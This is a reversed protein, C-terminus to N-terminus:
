NSIAFAGIVTGDSGSGIGGSDVATWAGTTPDISWLRIYSADPIASCSQSELLYAFKGSRDVALAYEDCVDFSVSQTIGAALVGSAPNVPLTLLQDGPPFVVYAYNSNPDLAFSGPRGPLASFPSGPIPTLTGSAAAIAYGSVAGESYAYLHSGGSDVGLAVPGTATQPSSGSIAALAGTQSDIAYSFVSNSQQSIGYLYKGSPEIVLSTPEAGTTFPSGAVATLAGTGPDIAYAAIGAQVGDALYLFKGSPDITVGHPADPVPYPSGPVATITGSAADVAFGYLESADNAVYVFGGNPTGSVLYPHQGVPVPNATLANLSGTTPDITYVWLGFPGAPPISGAYTLVYAFQSVNKCTVSIDSVPASTVVGIGGSVACHLTPNGSQAAISVSYTTGSPLSSPFAFTGDESLPLLGLHEDSLQISTGALGSVSGGVSYKSTACTVLINTVNGNGARGSGNAVTCTQSPQTPQTVVVINYATGTVAADTITFAGNSSITVPKIGNSALVLGSGALGSVTGGIAVPPSNGGGSCAALALVALVAFIERVVSCARDPCAAVNM